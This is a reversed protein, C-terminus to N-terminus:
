ILRRLMELIASMDEPLSADITMPQGTAPHIFSLRAAHLMQRRAKKLVKQRETQHQDSGKRARRPGYVPDGVIPHGMAQCHVRIQHTRGTKLDVQLLTAGPLREKVSWITLAERSSHSRTSMKKREVPHRGLPLDIKGSAKEPSGHVLALYQKKIIRAKFQKSLGHHAQSNKAVLLLGSTDKDLRHVIGPRQEGGIGALSPCHFLLANVLTGGAHGPAPHVVLGAPKNVVILHDDQFRIDLSIPEAAIDVPEPPPLCGSIQQFPRVRYSPKQATGDVQVLGKRILSAAFSRSCHTADDPYDQNLFEPLRRALFADLREPPTDPPVEFKFDAQTVM